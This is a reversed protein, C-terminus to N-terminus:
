KFNVNLKDFTLLKDRYYEYQQQRFKIEAPLGESLDNCLKDFRDLINVIREQEDLPPIPIKFNIFKSMDVAPFHGTKINSLCFEDLKFCYYFLFKIDFKKKFEDKLILCTFRQNALSKIKILAHEGITASTSVIISNAPFLESKVGEPTIHSISDFLIRGNERIDEMRFWAIKGDEWFKVNKKSPTYGNRLLFIEGLTKFEVDDFTLLKDRYYEYQKKRLTLEEKLLDILGTQGDAFKDLIRVIEKQVEIPPVPILLKKFLNTDFKPYTSTEVYFDSVKSTLYHYLFRTTIKKTNNSEIIINNSSVFFGNVYKTNAHRARGMVFVEGNSLFKGAVEKTTFWNYNRSSPLLPIDGGNVIMKELENAGVQKYNNLLVLGEVPFFEVGHPCLEEILDKLRSM